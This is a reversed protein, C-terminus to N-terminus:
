DKLLSKYTKMFKEVKPGVVARCYGQNPNLVFYNQHYEEAPYFKEAPLVQTVVKSPYKGSAEIEKILKEALLKQEQDHYFM